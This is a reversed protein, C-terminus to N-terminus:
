ACFTIVLDVQLCIFTLMYRGRHENDAWRSVDNM